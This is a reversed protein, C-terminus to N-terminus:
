HNLHTKHKPQLLHAINVKGAFVEDAPGTLTIRDTQENWNLELEGGLVELSIQRELVGTKVGAALTACAGTGCALTEGVGREWTRSRARAPSIVEVFEVNTRQPFFPSHELAPGIAALDLDEIGRTFIVCHPNGMGVATATFSYRGSEVAFRLHEGPKATPIRTGEFTPAGVDVRIREARSLVEIAVNGRDTELEFAKQDPALLGLKYIFRAICRMGNVCIARSGDANYYAMMYDAKTSPHLVILGDAGIGFHRDCAVKAFEVADLALRHRGDIMIFDNGSGQMKVFAVEGAEATLQIREFRGTATPSTM